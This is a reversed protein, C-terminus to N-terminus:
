QLRNKQMVVNIIKNEVPLSFKGFIPKELNLHLCILKPTDRNRRGRVLATIKSIIITLVPIASLLRNMPASSLFNWSNELISKNNSPNKLGM